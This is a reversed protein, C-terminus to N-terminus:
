DKLRICKIASPKFIKGVLSFLRYRQKIVIIGGIIKAIKNEIIFVGHPCVDVCMGCGNCKDQALKLTAVNKLYKLKEM